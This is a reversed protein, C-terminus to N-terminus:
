IVFRLLRIFRGNGVAIVMDVMIFLLLEGYRGVITPVMGDCSRLMALGVEWLRTMGLLLLSLCRAYITM